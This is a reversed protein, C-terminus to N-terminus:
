ANPIGKEIACFKEFERVADVIAFVLTREERTVELANPLYIMVDLTARGHLGMSVALKNESEPM